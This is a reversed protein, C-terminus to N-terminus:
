PAATEFRRVAKAQVPLRWETPNRMGVASVSDGAFFASDPAFLAVRGGAFFVADVGEGPPVDARVLLRAGRHECLDTELIEVRQDVRGNRFINPEVSGSSNARRRFRLPVREGFQALERLFVTTARENM